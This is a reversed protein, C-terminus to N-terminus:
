KKESAADENEGNNENDGEDDESGDDVDLFYM